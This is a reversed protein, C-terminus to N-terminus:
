CFGKQTIWKKKEVDRFKHNLPSESPTLQVYNSIFHPQVSYHGVSSFFGRKDIWNKKDKLNEELRKEEETMYPSANRIYKQSSYFNNIMRKNQNEKYPDISNTNLLDYSRQLSNTQNTRMTNSHNHFEKKATKMQTNNMEIKLRKYLPNIKKIYNMYSIFDNAIQISTFSIKMSNKGQNTIKSKNKEKMNNYFISLHSSIDDVNTINTLVISVLSSKVLEKGVSTLKSRSNIVFTPNMLDKGLVKILPRNDTIKISKNQYSIEYLNSDLSFSSFLNFIIQSIPQAKDVPFSYTQNNFAILLNIINSTMANKPVRQM